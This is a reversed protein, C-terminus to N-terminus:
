LVAGRAVWHVDASRMPKLLVDHAGAELMDIWTREDCMRLVFVVRAGTWARLIRDLMDPWRNSSDVECFVVPCGRLPVDAADEVSDTVSAEIGIAYLFQRLAECDGRNGGVVIAQCGCAPTPNAPSISTQFAPSPYAPHSM